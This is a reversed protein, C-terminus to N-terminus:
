IVHGLSRSPGDVVFTSILDKLDIGQRVNLTIFLRSRLILLDLRNPILVTKNPLLILWSLM